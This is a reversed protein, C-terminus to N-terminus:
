VKLQGLAHRKAMEKKWGEPDKQPDPLGDSDVARRKRQADRAYKRKLLTNLKDARDLLEVIENEASRLRQELNQHRHSKRIMAYSKVSLFSCVAVTLLLFWDFLTFQM